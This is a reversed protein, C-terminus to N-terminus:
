PPPHPKGVRALKGVLTRLSQTRLRGVPRRNSGNGASVSVRRHAEGVVGRAPGRPETRRTARGRRTRQHGRRWHRRRRRRARSKPRVPRRSPSPSSRPHPQPGTRLCSRRSSPPTGGAPSPIAAGRGRAGPGPTQNTTSGLQSRGRRPQKRTSGAAPAARRRPGAPRPLGRTPRHRPVPPSRSQRGAEQRRDALFQQEASQQQPRKSARRDGAQAIPIEAMAKAPTCGNSSPERPVSARVGAEDQEADDGPMRAQRVASSDRDIRSWM